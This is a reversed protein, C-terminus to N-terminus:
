KMFSMIKMKIGSHYKMVLWLEGTEASSMRQCRIPKLLLLVTVIFLVLVIFSGQSMELDVSETTYITVSALEEAACDYKYVNFSPIFYSRMSVNGKM